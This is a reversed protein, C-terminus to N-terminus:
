YKRWYYEGMRESCVKSVGYFGTPHQSFENPVLDSPADPGYSAVSSAYVVQPVGFLRAVELVNFTGAINVQFSTYPSSESAPPLLAGSHFVRDPKFALFAEMVDAWNAVSGRVAKVDGDLRELFAEDRTIDLLLVSDGSELLQQTLFRGIFGFGGTVLSRAM